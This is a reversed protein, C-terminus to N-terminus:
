SPASIRLPVSIQLQASIRANVTSRYEKANRTILSMRYLMQKSLYPGFACIFNYPAYLQIYIYVSPSNALCSNAFRQNSVWPRIWSKKLLPASTEQEVEVGSFWM